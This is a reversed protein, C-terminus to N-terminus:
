PISGSSSSNQASQSLPSKALQPIPQKGSSCLSTSESTRVVNSPSSLSLITRVMLASMSISSSGSPAVGGGGGGGDGGEPPPFLSSSANSTGAASAKREDICSSSPDNPSSRKVSQVAIAKAACFGPPAFFLSRSKRSECVGSSELM